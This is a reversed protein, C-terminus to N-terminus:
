FLGVQRKKPDDNFPCNGIERHGFEGCKRCRQQKRLGPEHSAKFRNKRQRGYARKLPPPLLKFSMDVEPWQTKDTMRPISGSYAIRFREVSYYEHVFTPRDIDLFMLIFALAHPCPKGTMEWEGCSCTHSKLDLVHGWPTMDPYLGFVEVSFNNKHVKMHSLERTKARLQKLITPLITGYLKSGIRTRKDWLDTTM